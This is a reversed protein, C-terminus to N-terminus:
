DKSTSGTSRSERKAGVKCHCSSAPASERSGMEVYADGPAVIWENGCCGVANRKGRTGGSIQRRARESGRKYDSNQEKKLYLKKNRSFAERKEQIMREGDADM